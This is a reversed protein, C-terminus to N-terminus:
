FPAFGTLTCEKETKEQYWTPFAGLIQNKSILIREKTDFIAGVCQFM